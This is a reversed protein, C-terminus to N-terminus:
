SVRGLRNPRMMNITTELASDVEEESDSVSDRASFSDVQENKPSGPMRMQILHNM